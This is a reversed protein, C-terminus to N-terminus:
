DYEFARRRGAADEIRQPLLPDRFSEAHQRHATAEALGV